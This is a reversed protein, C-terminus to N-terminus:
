GKEQHWKNSSVFGAHVLSRCLKFLTVRPSPMLFPDYLSKAIKQPAVLVMKEQM